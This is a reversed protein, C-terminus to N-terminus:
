RFRRSQAAKLSRNSLRRFLSLSSTEGLDQSRSLSSSASCSITRRHQRAIQKITVLQEPRRQRWIWRYIVLPVICRLGGAAAFISYRVAQPTDWLRDLVFTALYISLVGLVACCRRTWCRRSPSFRRRFASLKDQLSSPLKSGVSAKSCSVNPERFGSSDDPCVALPTITVSRQAISAM